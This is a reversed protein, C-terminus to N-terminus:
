ASYPFKIEYTVPVTVGPPLTIPEQLVTHDLLFPKISNENKFKGYLGVETLEIPKSTQNTLYHTAALQTYDDNVVVSLGEIGPSQVLIDALAEDNSDISIPSEMVIDNVTAPTKGTGFYTGFWIGHWRASGFCLAGLMTDPFYPSTVFLPMAQETGTYDIVTLTPTSSKFRRFTQALMNYFNKTLM